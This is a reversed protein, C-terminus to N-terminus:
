LVIDNLNLIIPAVYSLSTLLINVLWIPFIISTYM